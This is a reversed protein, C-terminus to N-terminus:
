GDIQTLAVEADELARDIDALSHALSLYAKNGPMVFVGRKLLQYHFAKLKKADAARSSRHDVIPHDTFALFWTPGVGYAKARIGLRRCIEDLGERMRNGLAHLHEFAGPTTLTEIVSIASAAILAQANLTGSQYVYHSSGGEKPDCLAMIERRGTVAAIPFGGGLAKGVCALDPVVGYYDQAGGLALRFGTALEDFVLCIGHRETTERLGELFGPVPPIYRQLPELIVAAIGDREREIIEQAQTLDNFPAILTSDILGRPIGASNPQPTPFSADSTPSLSIVGIDHNGHYAGEFKLVKDRGTHARALRLAYYTAESGTAAFRVLEACPIVNRIMAALRIAQETVVSFYHHGKLLQADVAAMQAPHRHGLVLTGGGCSMDLYRDGAISTMYAGEASAPIFGDEVAFWFKGLVGGPLVDRALCTLEDESSAGGEPVHLAATM